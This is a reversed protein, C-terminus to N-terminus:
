PRIRGSRLDDFLFPISFSNAYIVWSLLVVCIPGIALRLWSPRRRVGGARAAGGGRACRGRTYEPKRRRSVWPVEDQASDARLLFARGGKV